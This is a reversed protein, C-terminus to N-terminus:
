TGKGGSAVPCSFAALAPAPHLGGGPMRGSQGRLQVPWASVWSLLAMASDLASAPALRAGMPVTVALEATPCSRWGVFPCWPGLSLM